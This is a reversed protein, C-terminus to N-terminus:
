PAGGARPPTAEALGYVPRMAHPPLGFPEYMAQFDRMTAPNVIEAGNMVFRLSSLDLGKLDEVRVGKICRAYGFNPSACMTAHHRHIAWLFVAPRAVFTMPAMLVLPIRWYISFLLQGILGMDHYLPCWGVCLDTRNIEAAQGIAHINAVASRHSITVGKPHGTSGSTYQVFALDDESARFKTALPPTHAVEEVTVLHALGPAAAAVGPMLRRLSDTTLCVRAKSHNICHVLRDLTSVVQLRGPEATPVPVARLLQVGFFATVFDFSTPIVLVVPQGAGVGLQQLAAAVRRAGHYLARYSM